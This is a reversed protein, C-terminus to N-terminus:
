KMGPLVPSGICRCNIAEGPYIFEAEDGPKPPILCGQDLKYRRGDAAVHTPRPHKGAHSHRWIAETIGLDMQRKRTIAATAKNNQDSAILIARRRTIGFREQIETTLTGLDRGAQVSRMVMGEIETFYQSPISKILSVNEAIVTDLMNQVSPSVTFKVAFGADLLIKKLAPDSYNKVSQAFWNALKPAAANINSIWREELLGVTKQLEKASIEGPSISQARYKSLLWYEVSAAMEGVIRILKKQYSAEIGANPKVGRVVKGGDGTFGNAHAAAAQRSAAARSRYKKGKSGWQYGKQGSPLTVTHIPM